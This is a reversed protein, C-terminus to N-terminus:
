EITGGANRYAQEAFEPSRKPQPYKSSPLSAWVTALLELAAHFKGANILPLAGADIILLQACADQEPPTFGKLSLRRKCRDYTPAIIQYKGAASSFERTGDTQRFPIRVRPHDDFSDFLGGGFLMRYGQPGETGECVSICSLMARLNSTTPDTM